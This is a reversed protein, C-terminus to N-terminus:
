LKRNEALMAELERVRAEAKEARKSEQDARKSEQDARECEEDARKREQDARECEEDARKRERETNAREQARGDEMFLERIEAEKYETDLMGEVEAKHKMLFGKIVFDDPMLEIARGAARIIGYEKANQRIQEILWAYDYLPRCNEMIESNRGYNVNLMRVRVEIDADNRHAEGFSDSLRLIVEDEQEKIGNYFVVLKPYPLMILQEGYKNLRNTSIYASFLRDVYGLLRLPMNPNFTSQHEYVNIEGSVIFSTDNRMGMYLIEEITNFEILSADSYHSGNIANYLSLTWERNEERGFIYNFLRDKYEKNVATGKGDVM